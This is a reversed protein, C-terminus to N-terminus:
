GRLSLTASEERSYLLVGDRDISELLLEDDLENMRVIDLSYLGVNERLKTHLSLPIDDGILALDIDSNARADGRARSGFLLAQDVTKEEALISVIRDKISEPLNLM